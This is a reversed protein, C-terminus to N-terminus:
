SRPPDQNNLKVARSVQGCKTYFTFRVFDNPGYTTGNVAGFVNQDAVNETLNVSHGRVTKIWLHGNVGHVAVSILVVSSSASARLHVYGRVLAQPGVYTRISHPAACAPGKKPNAKITVTKGPVGPTGPSGPPGQAGPAGPTGPSGPPGAPGPAGPVGPTGPTGPKGQPGPPGQTSSCYAVVSDSFSGGGDYTWTGTVSFTLGQYASVDPPSVTITGSSGSTQVVQTGISKGGIMWNLTIPVRSTSSFYEYSVDLQNCSLSSNTIIHASAVAPVAFAAAAVLVAILRKM